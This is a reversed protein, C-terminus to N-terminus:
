NIIKQTWELRPRVTGALDKLYDVGRENVNETVEFTITQPDFLHLVEPSITFLVIGVTYIETNLFNAPLFATTEFVGLKNTLQSKPLLSIFVYEGKLTKLHLAPVPPANIIKDIRYKFRFGVKQNINVSSLIEGFEDILESSILKVYEDGVPPDYFSHTDSGLSGNLYENVVSNLEGIKEVKGKSLLIGKTCLSQLSNMNHSVFLITRGNRSVDEMKGICKKQFDADGVALVEDILLIEPELFAAVSFALRLQMGSSYHKLSTELFNEVGSFDVIEDYKSNIESKKMGLISGNLYINEKGTLEPHFGTGVELLSAIRGRVKISGSTPYTIKSLIKLLTSKGAGNKGIIGVSEGPNINFCVDKLAWFEEQQKGIREKKFVNVLGDRISLYPQKSQNLTYKKSINKIEIIPKM